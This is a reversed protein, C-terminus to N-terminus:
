RAAWVYIEVREPTGWRKELLERVIQSDDRWLVGTLADEVGRALKLADPRKAPWRPASGLLNGKTGYHGKPRAVFFTFRVELPEDILRHGEWIKGAEQAVQDKWKAARPNADVVNTGSRGDKAHWTVARKSGAPEPTGFVTLTFIPDPLGTSPQRPQDGFGTSFLDLALNSM